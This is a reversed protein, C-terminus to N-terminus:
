YLLPSDPENFKVQTLHSIIATNFGQSTLYERLADNLGSYADRLEDRLPDM